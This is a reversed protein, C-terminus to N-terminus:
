LTYRKAGYFDKFQYILFQNKIANKQLITDFFIRKYTHYKSLQLMVNIQANLM